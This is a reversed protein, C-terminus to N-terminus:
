AAGGGNPDTMGEGVEGDRMCQTLVENIHELWRRIAKEESLTMLCTSGWFHHYFHFSTYTTLSTYTTFCFSRRPNAPHGSQLIGAQRGTDKTLEVLKVLGV